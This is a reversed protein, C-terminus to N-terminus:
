ILAIISGITGGGIVVNIIFAVTDALIADGISLDANVM